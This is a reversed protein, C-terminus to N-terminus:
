AYQTKFRKKGLKTNELGLFFRYSLQTFEIEAAVVLECVM